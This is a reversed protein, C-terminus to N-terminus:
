AGVAYHFNIRLSESGSNRSSYWEVLVRDTGNVSSVHVGEHAAGTAHTAGSGIARNTGVFNATKGPV